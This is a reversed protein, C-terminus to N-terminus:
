GFRTREIGLYERVFALEDGLRAHTSESARLTCRFVEALQTTTTEAQAPDIRILAAISNLTNFLFHPNIQARLARLEASVREARMTEVARARDVAHHYFGMALSIGAFLACFLLTFMGAQLVARPSGIFGPMLWSNVILAAVYSVVVAAASYAGARRLSRTLSLDDDRRMWPMVFAGVAWLGLGICYSFVLSVKFAAVYVPFGRGQDNLVGFFLAFPIAWLAQQWSLTVLGQLPNPLTRQLAPIAVRRSFPPPNAQSM